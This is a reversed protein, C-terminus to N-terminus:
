VVPRERHGTVGMGLLTTGQHARGPPGLAPAHFRAHLQGWIQDTKVNDDWSVHVRVEHRGPALDGPDTGRTGQPQGLVLALPLLGFRRHPHIAERFVNGSGRTVELKEGKM